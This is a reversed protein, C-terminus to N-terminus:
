AEPEQEQADARRDPLARSAIVAVGVLSLGLGAGWSLRDALSITLLALLVAGLALSPWTPSSFSTNCLFIIAQICFVGVAVTLIVSSSMLLDHSDRFEQALGASVAIVVIAMLTMVGWLLRPTPRADAPQFKFFAYFWGIAVVLVVLPAAGQM